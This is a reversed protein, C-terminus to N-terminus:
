FKWQFSYKSFYGGVTVEKVKLNHAGTFTTGLVKKLDGILKYQQQERLDCVYKAIEFLSTEYYRQAVQSTFCDVQCQTNNAADKVIKKHNCEGPGGFFKMGSGFLCM